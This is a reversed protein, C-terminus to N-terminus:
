EATQNPTAPPRNRQALPRGRVSSNTTVSQSAPAHPSSNKRCEFEGLSWTLYSVPDKAINENTWSTEKEILQKIKFAGM